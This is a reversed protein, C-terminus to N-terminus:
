SLSNVLHVFDSALNIVLSYEMNIRIFLYFERYLDHWTELTFGTLADHSGRGTEGAGWVSAGRFRWTFGTLCWCTCATLWGSMRKGLHSFKRMIFIWTSLGAETLWDSLLTQRMCLHIAAHTSLRQSSYAKVYQTKPLPPPTKLSGM